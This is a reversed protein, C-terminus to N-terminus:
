GPILSKLKGSMGSQIIVQDGILHHAYPWPADESALMFGMAGEVQKWEDTKMIVEGPSAVELLRANLREGLAELNGLINTVGEQADSLRFLREQVVGFSTGINGLYGALEETKDILREAAVGVLEDALSAFYSVFQSIVYKAFAQSGKVFSSRYYDNRKLASVLAPDVGIARYPPKFGGSVFDSWDCLKGEYQRWTAVGPAPTHDMVLELMRRVDFGPQDARSPDHRGDVYAAAFHRRNDLRWRGAPAIGWLMAHEKWAELLKRDTVRGGKGEHFGAGIRWMEAAWVMWRACCIANVVRERFRGDAIIAKHQELSVFSRSPWRELLRRTLSANDKDYLGTWWKFGDVDRLGKDATRRFAHWPEAHSTPYRGGPAFTQYANRRWIMPTYDTGGHPTKDHAWIVPPYMEAYRRMWQNKRPGTNSGTVWREFKSQEKVGGADPGTYRHDVHYKLCLLQMMQGHQVLRGLWGPYDAKLHRKKGMTAGTEVAKALAGKKIGSLRSPDNRKAWEAAKAAIALEAGLYERTDGTLLPEMRRIGGSGFKVVGSSLNQKAIDGSTRGQESGDVDASSDGGFLGRIADLLAELADPTEILYSM